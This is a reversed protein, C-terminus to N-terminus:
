ESENLLGPLATIHVVGTELDIEQVVSSIAPVLVEGDPGVVVYVDNAGTSLVDSIEGIPRGTETVVKLGVIEHVYYSGPERVLEGEPIELLAGRWDEVDARRRAGWFRVLLSSREWRVREIRYRSGRLYVTAGSRLHPAEPNFPDVRLEGDTGHPRTVRGVAM